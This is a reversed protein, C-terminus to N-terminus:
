GLAAYLVGIDRQITGLRGGGAIEEPTADLDDPLADDLMKELLRTLQIPIMQYAAMCETIDDKTVFALVLMTQFGQPEYTRKWRSQIGQMSIGYPATMDRDAYTTGVIVRSLGKKSIANVIKSVMDDVDQKVNMPGGLDALDFVFPYESM